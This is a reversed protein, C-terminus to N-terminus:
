FGMVRGKLESSLECTTLQFQKRNKAILRYISNRLFPPFLWSIVLPSFRPKLFPIIKLAADSEVYFKGNQFLIMSDFNKHAPFHENLFLESTQLSAFHLEQNRENKLIFQIARNCLACDGDFFLITKEM